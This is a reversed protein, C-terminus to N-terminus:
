QNGSLGILKRHDPLRPQGPRRRGFRTPRRRAPRCPRPRLRTTRLVPPHSPPHPRRPGLHRPPPRRTRHPPPDHPNHHCTYYTSTYDPGDAWYRASTRTLGSMRRKCSRCRIRSRLVYSRRTQRHTNPGTGDISECIVVAFRPAPGAAEALLDAFGGDRPIGIGPFQKHASGHGRAETPLGCSEIDWFWAAIYWGPPLKAQCERVQKRMSAVPDQLTFTSTRGSFAVPVPEAASSAEGQYAGPSM